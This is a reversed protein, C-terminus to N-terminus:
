PSTRRRASCRCSGTRRGTRRSTASGPGCRPRGPRRAAAGPRRAPRAGADPAARRGRDQGAHDGRVGRLGTVGVREGPQVTLSVNGLFVGPAPSREVGSSRWPRAAGAPPTAAASSQTQDPPSVSPGNPMFPTEAEGVMAAVLDDKTVEALPATLVLEGDRARRRRHLDRLGGGPPALHVPDRRGAGAAPPDARVPASGRRARAGRHARRAAPLPHRRALARTIEVM